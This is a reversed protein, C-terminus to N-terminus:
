NVTGDQISGDPGFLIQTNYLTRAGDTDDIENVGMVCYVGADRCARGIIETDESPIAISNDQLAVNWAYWEDIQSAYWYAPFVPIYTEFFAVLKAGNAGAEKIRNCAVEISKEKKLVIQPGQVAAVRVTKHGGFVAKNLKENRIKAM